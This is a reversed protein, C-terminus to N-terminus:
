GGGMFLNLGFLRQLGDIRIFGIKLKKGKLKIIIPKMHDISYAYLLKKM